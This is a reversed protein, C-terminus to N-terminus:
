AGPGDNVFAYRDWQVKTGQVKAGVDQDFVGDNEFDFGDGGKEGGMFALKEHTMKADRWFERYFPNKIALSTRCRNTPRGLDPPSTSQSRSRSLM